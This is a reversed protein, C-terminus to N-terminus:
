QDVTLTTASRAIIDSYPSHFHCFCVQNNFVDNRVGLLKLLISSLNSRHNRLVPASIQGLTAAVFKGFATVPLWFTDDYNTCRVPIDAASREGCVFCL